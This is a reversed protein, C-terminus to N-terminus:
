TELELTELRRLLATVRKRAQVMRSHLAANEARLRQVEEAVDGQHARGEAVEELARRLSAVQDESELARRKWFAVVM